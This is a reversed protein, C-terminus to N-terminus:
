SSGHMLGGDGRLGGEDETEGPRLTKAELSLREGTREPVASLPM